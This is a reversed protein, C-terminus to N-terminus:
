ATLWKTIRSYESWGGGCLFGVFIVPPLFVVAAYCTKPVSVAKKTQVHSASACWPRQGDSHSKFLVMM